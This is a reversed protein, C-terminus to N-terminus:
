IMLSQLMFQVMKMMRMKKMKFYGPDINDTRVSTFLRNPVEKQVNGLKIIAM